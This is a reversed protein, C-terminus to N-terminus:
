DSTRTRGSSRARYPRHQCRFGGSLRGPHLGGAADARGGRHRGRQPGAVRGACAKPVVRRFPAVCATAAGGQNITGNGNTFNVAGANAPTCTYNASGGAQGGSPTITFSSGSQITGSAPAFTLAPPAATLLSIVVPQTGATGADQDAVVTTGCTMAPSCTALGLTSLLPFTAGPAVVIDFTCYTVAASQTGPAFGHSSLVAGAGTISCTNLLAGGAGAIAQANQFTVGAAPPDLRVTVGQAGGSAVPTNASVAIAVGTITGGTAPVQPTAPTFTMTVAAAPGAALFAVGSLISLALRKM